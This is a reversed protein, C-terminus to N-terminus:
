LEEYFVHAGIRGRYISYTPLTWRPQPSLDYRCYHTAGGVPSNLLGHIALEAMQRLLPIYGVFGRWHDDNFTSYQGRMLVQRLTAGYHTRRRSLRETVTCAVAVQGALPEGAAEGAVLLALLDTDTFQATEM